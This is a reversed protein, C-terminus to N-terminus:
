EAPLKFDPVYNFDILDYQPVPEAAIGGPANARLMSNVRRVPVYRSHTRFTVTPEATRVGDAKRPFPNAERAGLLNTAQSAPSYVVTVNSAKPEVLRAAMLFYCFVSGLLFGAGVLVIDRPNKM